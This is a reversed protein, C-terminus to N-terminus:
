HQMGPSRRSCQRVTAFRNAHVTNSVSDCIKNYQIICEVNDKMHQLIRQVAISTPRELLQMLPMCSNLAMLSALCIGVCAHPKLMRPALQPSTWRPVGRSSSRHATGVQAGRSTGAQQRITAPM